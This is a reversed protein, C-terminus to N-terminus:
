KKLLGAIEKYMNMKGKGKCTPKSSHFLLVILLSILALSGPVISFVHRVYHSCEECDESASCFLIISLEHAFIQMHLMYALDVRARKGKTLIYNAAM